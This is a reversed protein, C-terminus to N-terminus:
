ESPPSVRRRRKKPKPADGKGSDEPKPVAKPKPVPKPKAPVKAKPPAAPEERYEYASPVSKLYEITGPDKPQPELRGDEGLDFVESVCCLRVGRRTRHYWGSM